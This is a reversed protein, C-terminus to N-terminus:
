FFPQGLGYFFNIQNPLFGTANCNTKKRESNLSSYIQKFAKSYEEHFNVDGITDKLLRKSVEVIQPVGYAPM